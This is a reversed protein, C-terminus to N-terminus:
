KIQTSVVLVINPVVMSIRLNEKKEFVAYIRSYVKNKEKM